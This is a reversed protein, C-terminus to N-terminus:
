YTGKNNCVETEVQEKIAVDMQKYYYNLFSICNWIHIYKYIHIKYIYM